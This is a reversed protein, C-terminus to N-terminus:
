DDEGDFELMARKAQIRELKLQVQKERLDLEELKLEALARSKAKAKAADQTFASKREEKIAQAATTTSHSSSNTTLQIDTQTDLPYDQMAINQTSRLPQLPSRPSEVAVSIESLYPRKTPTQEEVFVQYKKSADNRCEEAYQAGLVKIALSHVLANARSRLASYSAALEGHFMQLDAQARVILPFDDMAEILDSKMAQAM